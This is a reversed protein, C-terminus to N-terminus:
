REPSLPSSWGYRARSTRVASEFIERGTAFDSTVTQWRRPSGETADWAKPHPDVEGAWRWIKV